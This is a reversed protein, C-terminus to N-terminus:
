VDHLEFNITGVGRGGAFFFEGTERDEFAIFTRLSELFDDHGDAGIGAEAGVRGLTATFDATTALLRPILFAGATSTGAGIARRQPRTTTDDETLTVTAEGLAIRTAGSALATEARQADLMDLQHTAGHLAIDILDGGYWDVAITPTTTM